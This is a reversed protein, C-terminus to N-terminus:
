TKLQSSKIEGVNIFENYAFWTGFSRPFPYSYHSKCDINNQKFISQIKLFDVFEIHTLDTKFGLEQPCIVIIKGKPKLFPLYDKLVKDFQTIPMHEAVHSFLLSDFLASEPSFNNLFHDTTFALLGLKQCSKVLISNFDVGVSGPPLAILNRGSGCGVDLTKGLDLYRLHLRYPLQFIKARLSKQHKILYEAYEPTNSLNLDPEM